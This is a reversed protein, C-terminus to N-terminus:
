NNKCCKGSSKVVWGGQKDKCCNKNWKANQKNTWNEADNWANNDEDPATGQFFHGLGLNNWTQFPAWRHGKAYHSFYDQGRHAARRYKDNDCTKVADDVDNESRKRDRFHREPDSFPGTKGTDEMNFDFDSDKTASSGDPTSFQGHGKFGNPNGAGFLGLVDLGVIPENCIFSMLNLSAREGLLERSMWRGTMPDYYRYSYDAVRVRKARTALRRLRISTMPNPSNGPKPPRPRVPPSIPGNDPPPDNEGPTPGHDQISSSAQCPAAIPDSLAATM